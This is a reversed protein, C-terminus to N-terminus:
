EGERILSLVRKAEVGCELRSHNRSDAYWELAEAAQKLKYVNKLGYGYLRDVEADLKKRQNKLRENEQKATDLEKRLEAQEYHLAVIKADSEDRDNMVADLETLIYSLWNHVAAETVGQGFEDNYWLITYPHPKAWELAKRIEQIKDM